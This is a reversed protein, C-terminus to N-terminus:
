PTSISIVISNSKFFISCFRTLFKIKNKKPHNSKKHAQIGRSIEVFEKDTVFSQSYSRNKSKSMVIKLLLERKRSNKLKRRMYIEKYILAYLITISIVSLFYILDYFNKFYHVINFKDDILCQYNESQYVDTSMSTRTFNSDNRPSNNEEM